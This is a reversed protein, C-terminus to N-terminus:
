YDKRSFRFCALSLIFVEFLASSGITYFLSNRNVERQNGEGRVRGMMEESSLAFLSMGSLSEGSSDDKIKQNILLTAERTKPLAWAVTKIVGHAKKLGSFDDTGDTERVQGTSFDVTEGAEQSSYSLAYLTSESWQVMLTVGWLIVMALLSLMTSRTWVAVLVGMCYIMSFVFVLIPVAWFVSWNWSGLRFGMAAFVILCFVGVQLFVFILSGLYKVLFLRVRSIPKSVAVDVSGTALFEPFVSSCSILALAIALYGLWWKVIVNTFLLLYFLEAYGSASNILDSEMEWLGFLVSYGHANVGISAFMLAVFMSIALVVWFLVRARLMRYSEWLITFVQRM